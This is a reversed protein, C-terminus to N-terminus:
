ACHTKTATDSVCMRRSKCQKQQWKSSYCRSFQGSVGSEYYVTTDDVACHGTKKGSPIDVDGTDDGDNGSNDEDSTGSRSDAEKAPYSIHGKCTGPRNPAILVYEDVNRVQFNLYIETLTGSRCNIQADVNFAEVFAAHMDAANPNSGPLIGKDALAKHLDYKARLELTKSFYSYVDQDDIHDTLCRPPDIAGKSTPWITHMHDLFDEPANHYNALRTEIDLYFLSRADHARSPDCDAIIRGECTDPWLGHVTFVDAPGIKTHWQLSLKAFGNKPLCCTDVGGSASSCSDVDVPCVDRKAFIFPGHIAHASVVSLSIALSAAFSLFKM